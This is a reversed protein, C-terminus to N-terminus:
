LGLQNIVISRVSDKNSHVVDALRRLSLYPDHLIATSVNKMLDLDPSRPCPLPDVYCFTGDLITAYYTYVTKMSPGDDYLLQLKEFAEQQTLGEKYCLEVLARDRVKMVWTTMGLFFFHSINDYQNKVLQM